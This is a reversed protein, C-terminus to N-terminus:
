GDALTTSIFAFPIAIAFLGDTFSLVRAFEVSDRGYRRSV